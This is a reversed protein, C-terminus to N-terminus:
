FCRRRRDPKESKVNVCEELILALPGDLRKKSSNIWSFCWPPGRILSWLFGNMQASQKQTPNLLGQMLGASRLRGIWTNVLGACWCVHSANCDVSVNGRAVQKSHGGLIECSFHHLIILWCSVSSLPFLQPTSPGQAVSSWWLSESERFCHSSFSVSASM